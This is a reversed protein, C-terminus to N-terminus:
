SSRATMSAAGFSVGATRVSDLIPLTARPAIMPKM